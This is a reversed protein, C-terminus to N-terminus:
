KRLISICSLEWNWVGSFVEKRLIKTYAFSLHRKVSQFDSKTLLPASIEVMGILVRNNEKRPAEIKKNEIDM